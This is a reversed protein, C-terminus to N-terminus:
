RLKAEALWSEGSLARAECRVLSPDLRCTGNVPWASPLSSAVGRADFLTESVTSLSLEMPKVLSCSAQRCEMAESPASLIGVFTLVSAGGPSSGRAAWSVRFVGAGRQDVLVAGCEAAALGSLNRRCELPKPQWRGFVENRGQVPAAAAVGAAVQPLALVLLACVTARVSM